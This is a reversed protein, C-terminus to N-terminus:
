SRPGSSPRQTRPPPPLQDPRYDTRLGIQRVCFVDVWDPQVVRLTIPDGATVTQWRELASESPYFRVADGLDLEGTAAGRDLQLRIRLGEVELLSM